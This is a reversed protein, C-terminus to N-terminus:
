CAHGQYNKQGRFKAMRLSRLYAGPSVLSGSQMCKSCGHQKKKHLVGSNTIYHKLFEQDESRPM